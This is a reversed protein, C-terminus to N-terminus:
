QYRITSKYVGILYTFGMLMVIYAIEADAAIVNTTDLMSYSLGGILGVGLSLGMADMMIKRQMEDVEQLYKANAIIMGIGIATNLLIFFISINHDFNWLLKAGFATIALTILWALTWYALRRTAKHIQASKKSSHANM